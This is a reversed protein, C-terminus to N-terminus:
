NKYSSFKSNILIYIRYVTCGSDPKPIAEFQDCILLIFIIDCNESMINDDIKKSKIKNIKDIKSVAVLKM